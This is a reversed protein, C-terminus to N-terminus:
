KIAVFEPNKMYKGNNDKLFPLVAVVATNNILGYVHPYARGCHDADEYRVIATLLTEDICLLVYPETEKEFLPAVRWFYEITSCHIFGEKELEEKGWSVSKKRQEWVREPMAHLILNHVNM